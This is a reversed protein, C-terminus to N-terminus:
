PVNEAVARLHENQARLRNENALRAFEREVLVQRLEVGVARAQEHQTWYERLYTWSSGSSYWHSSTAMARPIAGTEPAREIAIKKEEKKEPVPLELAMRAAMMLVGVQALEPRTRRQGSLWKEVAALATAIEAKSPNM